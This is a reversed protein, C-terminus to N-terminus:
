AKDEKSTRIDCQGTACRSRGTLMWSLRYRNRAFWLYARDAFWRMVPWRLAQVWPKRDVAKWAAATVDLGLIIQNDIKGHLITMAATPDIDPHSSFAESHIDVLNLKAKEDYARLANMEKACLPCTGDYFVTLM